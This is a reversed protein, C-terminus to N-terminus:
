AVNIYASGSDDSAKKDEEEMSAPDEEEESAPDEEEVSAPDEAPSGSPSPNTAPEPNTAPVVPDAEEIIGMAQKYAAVGVGNCSQKQANVIPTADMGNPTM